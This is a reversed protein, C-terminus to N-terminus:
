FNVLLYIRFRDYWSGTTFDGAFEPDKTRYHYWLGGLMTRPTLMYDLTLSHMRYNTGILINDHSFASLVADVDTQSYGYMVRWDGQKQTRGAILDIGFGTDEDDIAGFNKVYDGVIRLPWRPDGGRWEASAILDLLRYESLLLGDEGRRNSRLDIADVAAFNDLNFDYYAAYGEFRWPDGRGHGYGFQAGRLFSDDGLTREDIPSWLANAMFDSREGFGRRYVAGVGQPNVDGDWVLETRAFPQQIKGLQVRLEEFGLQIYALDLNVQFDDWWNSLQADSGRPNDPDGTVLRAGVGIQETVQYTAGLRARVQNTVRGDALDDTYDAQARVRLDGSVRLRPPEPQSSPVIPAAGGAGGPGGPAPAPVEAATAASTAAGATAPAPAALGLRAELSRLTAENRAQWQALEQQQARLAEIEQRLQATDDLDVPPSAALAAGPCLLLILAVLRPM